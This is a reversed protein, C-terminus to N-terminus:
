GQDDPISPPPMFVQGDYTCGIYVGNTNSGLDVWNFQPDLHDGDEIVQVNKVIGDKIKAYISAM